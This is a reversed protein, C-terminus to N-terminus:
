TRDAGPAEAPTPTARGETAEECTRHSSRWAPTPWGGVPGGHLAILVDRNTRWSGWVIAEIPGAPGSFLELHPATGANGVPVSGHVTFGGGVVLKALGATSVPGSFPIHVVDTGDPEGRWQAVAGLVGVPSELAKIRDVFPHYIM